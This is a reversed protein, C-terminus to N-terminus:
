EFQISNVIQEVEEAAGPASTAYTEGDIWVITGDVDIIWSQITSNVSTAYRGLGVMPDDAEAAYWLYFADPACGIDEPITIVVRQAPHGGVTVESPGSVVETGPVTSVAAALEAPSAGPPPHMPTETCPDAYTNDPASERWFIFGAAHADQLDKDIGFDGNSVWGETVVEFTFPVGALTMAHRGVALPGALPFADAESAAPTPTPESVAPANSPQCGIVTVVVVVAGALVIRVTGSM